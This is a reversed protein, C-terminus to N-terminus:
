KVQLLMRRGRIVSLPTEMPKIREMHFKKLIENAYNGESDFLGEDGQSVEMGLFYHILGLYKM